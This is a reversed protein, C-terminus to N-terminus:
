LRIFEEFLLKGNNNPDQVQIGQKAIAMWKAKLLQDNKRQNKNQYWKVFQSMTIIKKNDEDIEKFYKVMDEKTKQFNLIDISNKIMKFNSMFSNKDIAELTPKVVLEFPDNLKSKPIKVQSRKFLSSKKSLSSVGSMGSFLSGQISGEFSTNTSVPNSNKKETIM